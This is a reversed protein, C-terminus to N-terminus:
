PAIDELPVYSYETPQYRDLPNGPVADAEAKIATMFTPISGCDVNDPVLTISNGGNLIPLFDDRYFWHDAWLVGNQGLDRRERLLWGQLAGGQQLDFCYLELNPNLAPTVSKLDPHALMNDDPITRNQVGMEGAEYTLVGDNDDIDALLTLQDDIGTVPDILASYDISFGTNNMLEINGPDFIVQAEYYDVDDPPPANIGMLRGIPISGIRVIAVTGPGIQPLITRGGPAAIGLDDVAAVYALYAPDDLLGNDGRTQAGAIAVMMTWFLM